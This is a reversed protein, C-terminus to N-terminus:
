ESLQVLKGGGTWGLPEDIKYNTLGTGTVFVDSRIGGSLRCDGILLNKVDEVWIPVRVDTEEAGIVMNDISVGDVHRLYLGSAPMLPIDREPYGKDDERINIGYDGEQM